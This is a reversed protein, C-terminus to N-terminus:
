KHGTMTSTSDPKFSRKIDTEEQESSERIAESRQDKRLQTACSGYAETIRPLCLPSAPLQAIARCREVARFHQGTTVDYRRLNLLPAPFIYFVAPVTHTHWRGRPVQICSGGTPSVQRAPKGHVEAADARGAVM